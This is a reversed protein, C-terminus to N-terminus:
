NVAQSFHIFLFSLFPSEAERDIMAPLTWKLSVWLFNQPWFLPTPLASGSLPGRKPQSRDYLRRQWFHRQEVPWKSTWVKGPVVEKGVEGLAGHRSQIIAMRQTGACETGVEIGAGVGRHQSQHDQQWDKGSSWLCRWSSAHRLEGYVGVEIVHGPIHGHKIHKFQTEM